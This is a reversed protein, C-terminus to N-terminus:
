SQNFRLIHSTKKKLSRYFARARTAYGKSPAYDHMAVHLLLKLPWHKKLGQQAHKFFHPTQTIMHHTVQRGSVKRSCSVRNTEHHVHYRYYPYEVTGVDTPKAQKIRENAMMRFFVIDESQRYQEPYGGISLAEDRWFVSHPRISCGYLLEPIPNDSLEYIINAKGYLRAPCMFFLMDTNDTFAEVALDIYSILGNSRWSVDLQDDADLNMMLPYKALRMATNRAFSQGKNTSLEIVRIDFGHDNQNKISNLITITQADTSGDDVLIVEFPANIANAQDSISQLADQLLMGANYCPIM